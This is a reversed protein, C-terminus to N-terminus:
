CRRSGGLSRGPETAPLLVEPRALRIRDSIDRPAVSESFLVVHVGALTQLRLRLEASKDLLTDLGTWGPLERAIIRKRLTAPAAELLVLLHDQAGISALVERKHEPSEIVEAVLALRCGRRHHSRGWAQLHECRQALSPFPYAWAVEDVDVAAHAIEDDVLADSLATLTATKGAGPAGTLVVAFM